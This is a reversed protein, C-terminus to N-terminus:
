EELIFPDVGHGIEGRVGDFAETLCLLEGLQLERFPEVHAVLGYGFPLGSSSKGVDGKEFGQGGTQLHGNGFQKGALDRGVAVDRGVHAARVEIDARQASVHEGANALRRDGAMADDQGPQFGLLGVFSVRDGHFLAVSAKEDLAAMGHGLAVM